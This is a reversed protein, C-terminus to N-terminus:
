RPIYEQYYKGNENKKIFSYPVQGGSADIFLVLFPTEDSIHFAFVGDDTNFQWDKTQVSCLWSKQIGYRKGLSDEEEFSIVFPKDDFYELELAKLIETVLLRIQEKTYNM